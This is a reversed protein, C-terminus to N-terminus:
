KFNQTCVYYLSGDYAVGVGIVDYQPDLINAKHGPSEMWSEVQARAISDADNSIYGMGEVNGTPMKGINEAIGDSYWGGGLEKHVNYRMRIARATPDEGNLNIHNFFNNTAMDESHLRAVESLKSDLKLQSVGANVREENTYKFIALEIEGTDVPTISLYTLAKDVISGVYDNDDINNSPSKANTILSNGNNNEEPIIGSFIVFLFFTLSILIVFACLFTYDIKKILHVFSTYGVSILLIALISNITFNSLIYKMGFLLLVYVIAWIFLNFNLKFSYKHINSSIARAFVSIIIGIFIIQFYYDRIGFTDVLLTSLYFLIGYILIWFLFWWHRYIEKFNFSSMKSIVKKNFDRFKHNSEKKSYVKKSNEFRTINKAPKEDEYKKYNKPFDYNDSIEVNVYNDSDEFNSRGSHKKLGSFKSEYNLSICNHNERLRHEPCLDKGCHKCTYLNFYEKGCEDCKFKNSM